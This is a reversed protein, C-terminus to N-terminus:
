FESEVYRAMKLFNKFKKKKSVVKSSTSEDHMPLSVHADYSEKM